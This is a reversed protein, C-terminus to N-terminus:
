DEILKMGKPFSSLALGLQTGRRGDGPLTLNVIEVANELIDLRESLAVIDHAHLIASIGFYFEEVAPEFEVDRDMSFFSRMRSFAAAGDAVKVMAALRTSM